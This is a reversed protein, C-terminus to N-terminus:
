TVHALSIAYYGPSKGQMYSFYTQFGDDLITGQAKGLPIDSHLALFINQAGGLCVFSKANVYNSWGARAKVSVYVKLNSSMRFHM